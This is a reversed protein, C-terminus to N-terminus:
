VNIDFVYGLKMLIPDFDVSNHEPCVSLCVSVCVYHIYHDSQSASTFWNDSCLGQGASLAADGRLLQQLGPSSGERELSPCCPGEELLNPHHRHELCLLFQMCCFSYLIKVLRSFNLMHIGCIGPAKGWKLWNRAAQKEVFSPSDCNIPPDSIPITVVKVDLEVAPTDAQYLWEFYGTWRDKVKSVETM